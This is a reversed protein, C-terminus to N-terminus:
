AMAGQRGQNGLGLVRKLDCIKKRAANGCTPSSGIPERYQQGGFEFVLRPHGKGRAPELHIHEAGITELYQVVDRQHNRPKM